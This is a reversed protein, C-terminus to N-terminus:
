SDPQILTSGALVSCLTVIEPTTADQSGVLVVSIKAMLPFATGSGPVTASNSVPRM